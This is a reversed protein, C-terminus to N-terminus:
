GTLFYDKMNSKRIVKSFPFYPLILLLWKQFLFSVKKRCDLLIWSAIENGALALFHWTMKTGVFIDFQAFQHFINFSM